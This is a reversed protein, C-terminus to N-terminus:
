GWGDMESIMVLHGVLKAPADEAGCGDACFFADDGGHLYATEGSSTQGVGGDEGAGSRLGAVSRLQPVLARTGVIMGLRGAEFRRLASQRELQESSPTLRPNRVLTLIQEVAARATGDDLQLSRPNNPDDVIDTRLPLYGIKSTIITYGHKSTLFKMLEWAARQKVPDHTLVVLASGSNTPRTPKDGFSPMPAARCIATRSM